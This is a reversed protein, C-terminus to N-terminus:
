REGRNFCRRVFRKTIFTHLALRSESEIGTSVTIRSLKIPRCRHILRKEISVTGFLLQRSYCAKSPLCGRAKKCLKRYRCVGWERNLKQESANELNEGRPHSM